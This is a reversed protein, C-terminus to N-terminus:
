TESRRSVAISQPLFHSTSSFSTLENQGTLLEPTISAFIAPDTRSSFDDKLFRLNNKQGLNSKPEKMKKVTLIDDIFSSRHLKKKSLNSPVEIFRGYPVATM